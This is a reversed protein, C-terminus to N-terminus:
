RSSTSLPPAPCTPWLRASAKRVRHAAGDPRPLGPDAQWRSRAPLNGRPLARGTSWLRPFGGRRAQRGRRLGRLVDRLMPGSPVMPWIMILRLKTIYDSTLSLFMRRVVGEKDGAEDGYRYLYAYGIGSVPAIFADGLLRRAAHYDIVDLILTGLQRSSPGRSSHRGARRHKLTAPSANSCRSFTTAM